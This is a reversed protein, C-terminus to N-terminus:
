LNVGFGRWGQSKKIMFCSQNTKPKLRLRRKGLSPQLICLVADYARNSTIMSSFELILLEALETPLHPNHM